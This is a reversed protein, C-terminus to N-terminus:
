GKLVVSIFLYCTETKAEANKITTKADRLAEIGAKGTTINM